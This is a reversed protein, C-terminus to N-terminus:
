CHDSIMDEKEMLLSICQELYAKTAGGRTTLWRLRDASVDSRVQIAQIQPNWRWQGRDALYDWEKGADAYTGDKFFHYTTEDFMEYITFKFLLHPPQM